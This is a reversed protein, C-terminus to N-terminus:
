TKGAFYEINHQSRVWIKRSNGEDQVTNGTKLPIFDVVVTRHM